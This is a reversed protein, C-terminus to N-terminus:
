RRPELCELAAAAAGWLGSEQDTILSVPIARLVRNTPDALRFERAFAPHELLAPLKVALGGAIYLGGLAVVQM